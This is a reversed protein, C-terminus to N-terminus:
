THKQKRIKLLLNELDPILSHVNYNDFVHKHANEALKSRMREDNLLMVISNIISKTDNIDVLLGTVKDVVAESVGGVDTSIVPVNLAMAELISLPLCEDRSTLIFIEAAFLFDSVNSQNGVFHIRSSFSSLEIDRMMERQWNPIPENQKYDGVWVFSFDDRYKMIEIIIPLLKDPGKRFNVNGVTLIVKHDPCIDYKEKIGQKACNNILQFDLSEPFTYIRRSNVRWNNILANRCAESCAIFFDPAESSIKRRDPDVPKSQGNIDYGQTSIGEGVGHLHCLLIANSEVVWPMIRYSGNTNFYIIDPKESRLIRNLKLKREFSNISDIIIRGRVKISRKRPLEYITSVLESISNFAEGRPGDLLISIHFRNRDIYRIISWLVSVAGAYNMKRTVFLIRTM